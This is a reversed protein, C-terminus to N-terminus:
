GRGPGGSCIASLQESGCLFKKPFNNPVMCLVCFIIFQRNASELKELRKSHSEYKHRNKLYEVPNALRM